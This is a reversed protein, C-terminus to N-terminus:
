EDASAVEFLGQQACRRKAIELYEASLDIGIAKRGLRKAVQATTGSGLFPDLVVCPRTPADHSCTPAWGTTSHTAITGTRLVSTAGVNGEYVEDIVSAGPQWRAQQQGTSETVREWPAGCELCAGRESTGALICPEVLKEPFTAFHAEPFAQTAINWVSRKNRNGRAAVGGEVERWRDGDNRETGLMHASPTRLSSRTGGTTYEQDHVWEFQSVKGPDDIAVAGDRDANVLPISAPSSLGSGIWLEKLDHGNPLAVCLGYMEGLFEKASVDGNTFRAAQATAGRMVPDGVTGTSTGNRSSKHRIEPDLTSLSLHDNGQARDLIAAALGVSVDAARANPAEFWFHQGLVFRQNEGNAAQVIGSEGVGERIADADYFYRPSKTLLFIMEHSKTPRDTVSEPMPNPKAWIIDSRLYWGDARLAFALMWPIGVLDKPKQGGPLTWRFKSGDGAHWKVATRTAPMSQTAGVGPSEGRGSRNNSAYSDGINLWLTGDKRLVRRVERFVDVMAAVFEEPTAELGLQQDIRRAGCHCDRQVTGADVTATSGVLLGKPRTSRSAAKPQHGCEEDGGDWSATGYDRLGWYPPSTVCTQVSEPELERLMARVDGQYFRAQGDDYAIM